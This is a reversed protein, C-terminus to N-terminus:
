ALRLSVAGNEGDHGDRTVNDTHMIKEIQAFGTSILDVGSSRYRRVRCVTSLWAHGFALSRAARADSM